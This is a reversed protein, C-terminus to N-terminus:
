TLAPKTNSLWETSFQTDAATGTGTHEFRGRIASEGKWHRSVCIVELWVIGYIVIVIFFVWDGNVVFATQVWLFSFAFRAGFFLDDGLWQGHIKGRGKGNQIDTSTMFKEGGQSM